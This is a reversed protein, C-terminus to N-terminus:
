TQLTAMEWRRITESWSWRTVHVYRVGPLARGRVVWSSTKSHIRLNRCCTRGEPQMFTRCTPKILALQAMWVDSIRRMIASVLSAVGSGGAVGSAGEGGQEPGCPPPASSTLM